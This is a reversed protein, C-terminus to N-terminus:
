LSQSSRSPVQVQLAREVLHESQIPLRSGVFVARTNSAFPGLSWDLPFDPHDPQTVSVYGHGWYDRLRTLVWQRTPRCGSGSQSQNMVGIQEGVLNLEEGDGRSCCTELLIIPAVSSLAQLAETPTSLHYLTGYCYAIDFQGIARIDEAQELDLQCIERDPYRRRMEAVNDTRGETVLVSCGRDLFFPTHLGIGAGVELVRKGSLPLDLSALHEQRAANIALAEPALFVHFPNLRVVVRNRIRSLKMTLCYSLRSGGIFGPQRLQLM